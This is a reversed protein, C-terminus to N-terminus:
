IEVGLALGLKNSNSERIEVSTHSRRVYRAFGFTARSKIRGLELNETEQYEASVGKGSQKRWQAKRHAYVATLSQIPKIGRIKCM